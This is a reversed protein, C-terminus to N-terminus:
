RRRRVMISTLAFCGALLATTGPEPITSAYNTAVEGATLVDSYHRFVALSGHGEGVSDLAILGAGQSGGSGGEGWFGVGSTGNWNLAGANAISGALASDYYFSMINTADYTVVMQHFDGDSFDASLAIDVFASGNGAMAFRLNNNLLDGDNNDGLTISFGRGTGGAEFITHTDTPAGSVLAYNPSVWLEVSFTTGTLLNNGFHAGNANANARVGTSLANSFLSSTQGGGVTAAVKTLGNGSLAANYGSEATWTSGGTTTTIADGNLENVLNDTVLAAQATLASLSAVLTINIFTKM